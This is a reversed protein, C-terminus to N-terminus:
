SSVSGTFSIFHPKERQHIHKIFCIFHHFISLRQSLNINELNLANLNYKMNYNLYYGQDSHPIHSDFVLPFICSRAVSGTSQTVSETSQGASFATRFKDATGEKTVM